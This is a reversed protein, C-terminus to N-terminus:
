FSMQGETFYREIVKPFNAQELEHIKAALTNPTDSQDIKCKAQFIIRGNDYVKDALHITIGSEKEGASIVAEHVHHGYM